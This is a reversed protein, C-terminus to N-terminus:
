RWHASRRCAAETDDRRARAPRLLLNVVSILLAGAFTSWFGGVSLDPVLLSTLWLTLTNIFLLAVGLSLIVAPLTMLVILPRLAFNVVGLIAGAPLLIGADGGYSIAPVIEAAILLGLCNCLWAILVRVM